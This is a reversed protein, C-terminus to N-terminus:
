DARGCLINLIVQHMTICNQPDVSLKELAMATTRHVEPDDSTMYSVIPTVTRLRGLEQTNNGFTACSAIAAALNKRLLDETTNVQSLHLKTKNIYDVLIIPNRLVFSVM